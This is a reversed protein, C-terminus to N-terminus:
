RSRAASNEQWGTLHQQLATKEKPAWETSLIAETWAQDLAAVVDNSEAGYEAVEEWHDVCARTIAEM